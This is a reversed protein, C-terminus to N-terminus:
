RGAAVQESFLGDCGGAPGDAAKSSGEKAAMLPM